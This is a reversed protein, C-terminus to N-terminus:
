FAACWKSEYITNMLAGVNNLTESSQSLFCQKLEAIAKDTEPGASFPKLFNQYEDTSVQSDITKNVVEELLSCGSGLLFSAL